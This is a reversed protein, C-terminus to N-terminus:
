IDLNDQTMVRAFQEYMDAVQNPEFPQSENDMFTVSTRNEGAPVVKLRYDGKELLSEGDSFLSGWWGNDEGNYTVFLLGTTRDLDKVDFGLNRLVLLMRPWVIDHRADVVYAADGNADFGMELNLGSRIEAIRKSEDLRIQYEYHTLVENLIGIEERREKMADISDMTITEGDAGNFKFDQLKARLAATRGHPKLEMTFVFRRSVESTENETWDYWASEETTKEVAWDTVLRGNEKDFSDVGIHNQELFSLVTDWIATNLPKSDDVQDFWVTAEQKGEEVHSGAVLPLVLAPSQITLKRGTLRTDANQSLEPLDYDSTFEPSDLGEPVKVSARQSVELYDYSGSATEYDQQSSCGTLAIVSLGSLLALTNKM